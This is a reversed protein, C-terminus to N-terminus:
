GDPPEKHGFHSDYSDKKSSVNRLLTYALRMKKKRGVTAHHHAGTQAPAFPLLCYTGFAGCVSPVVHGFAHFLPEFRCPPFFPGRPRPRCAQSTGEISRVSLRSTANSVRDASRHDGQCFGAPPFLEHGADASPQIIIEGFWFFPDDQFVSWEREGPLIAM